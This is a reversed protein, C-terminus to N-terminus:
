FKSPVDKLRDSGFTGSTNPWSARSRGLGPGSHRIWRLVINDRGRQHKEWLMSAFTLYLLNVTKLKEYKEGSCLQNREDTNKKKWDAKGPFSDSVPISNASFSMPTFSLFWLGNMKWQGYFISHNLILNAIWRVVGGRFGVQSIWFPSSYQHDIIDNGIM